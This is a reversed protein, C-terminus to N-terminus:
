DIAFANHVQFTDGPLGSIDTLQVIGDIATNSSVVITGYCADGIAPVSQPGSPIRHNQQLSGNPAISATVTATCNAPLGAAGQYQLTVNATETKSLNQITVVSAFGNALRKAYLPVVVKKKTGDAKIAEYAGAQAGSVVRMQVFAVTEYGTTTIRCSGFWQDPMGPAPTNTVPNFFFTSNNTVATNNALSFSAVGPSAVDKTCVVQIGGVPISGGSLNQVALPTSLTNALRSTFLPVLWEQGTSTFANYTQLTDPGSFVNAVVTVEGSAASVVASGFFGAPVNADTALDYTQSAGPALNNIAASAVETGTATSIMRITANTPSGSTNQVIIQSNVLGSASQLGKAVYPANAQPAGSTAGSYAARTATGSRTQIQVVAGLAGQGGVVVSGSGSSLETDDYQRRILQDGQAALTAVEPSRWQSGDQKYYSINVTNSGNSLNVLTFNTSLVKTTSQASAVLSAMLVLVMTLSVVAVSRRSTKM